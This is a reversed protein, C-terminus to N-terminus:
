EIILKKTTAGKNTTIGVLYTGYNLSSINVVSTKANLVEQGLMTYITVQELISTNELQITLQNKAPNPFLGINEVITETRGLTSSLEIVVETATYSITWESDAPINTPYTINSFTGLVSTPVGYINTTIITFSDGVSPTFGNHLSLNLNVGLLVASGNVSLKDYSTTSELEINLTGQDIYNGVVSLTGISNGPSLDAFNSFVGLEPGSVSFTGNGSITGGYGNEFFGDDSVSVEGNNILTGSNFFVSNPSTFIEGNNIINGWNDLDAASDLHIAGNNTVTQSSTIGAYGEVFVTEGANITNPIQANLVASCLIAVLFLLTFKKM